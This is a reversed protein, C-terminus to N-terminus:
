KPKIPSVTSPKSPEKLTTSGTSTSTGSGTSNSAAKVLGSLISRSGPIIFLVTLFALSFPYRWHVRLNKLLKKM